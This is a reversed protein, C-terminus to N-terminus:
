LATKQDGCLDAKTVRYLQDQGGALCRRHVEDDHRHGPVSVVTRLAWEEGWGVERDTVATAPRQLERLVGLLAVLCACADASADELAIHGEGFVQFENATVRLVIQVGRGVDHVGGQGGLAGDWGLNVGLGSMQQVTRGDLAAGAVERESFELGEAALHIPTVRGRGGYLTKE